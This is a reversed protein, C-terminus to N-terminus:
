GQNASPDFNYTGIGFHLNLKVNTNSRIIKIQTYVLSLNLIYNINLSFDQISICTCLAPALQEETFTSLFFNNLAHAGSTITFINYTCTYSLFSGKKYM